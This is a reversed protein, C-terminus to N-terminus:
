QRIGYTRVKLPASVPEAATDLRMFKNVAAQLDSVKRESIADSLRIVKVDDISQAIVPAAEEEERVESVPEAPAETVAREQRLAALLGTLLRSNHPYRNKRASAKEADGTESVAAPEAPAATPAAPAAAPVEPAAAPRVSTVPIATAIPQETALSSISGSRGFRRRSVSAEEQEAAEAAVASLAIDRVYQEFDISDYRDMGRMRSGISSRALRPKRSEEAAPTRVPETIVRKKVPTVRVAPQQRRVVVQVTSKGSSETHNVAVTDCWSEEQPDIDAASPQCATEEDCQPIVEPEAACDDAEAAKEEEPLEASPEAAAAIQAIEAAIARPSLDIDPLTIVPNEEVPAAQPAEAAPAAEPKDEPQVVMDAKTRVEPDIRREPRDASQELEEWIMKMEAQRNPMPKIPSLSPKSAVTNEGPRTHTIIIDVQKEACQDLLAIAADYDRDHTTKAAEVKALPAYTLSDPAPKIYGRNNPHQHSAIQEPATGGRTIINELSIYEEAIVEQQVDEFVPERMEVKKEPWPGRCRELFDASYTYLWFSSDNSRQYDVQEPATLAFLRNDPRADDLLVVTRLLSSRCAALVEPVGSHIRELMSHSMFMVVCSSTSVHRVAVFDSVKETLGASWFRFGENYMRALIPLVLM